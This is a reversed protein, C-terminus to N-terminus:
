RRARPCASVTDLTQGETATPRRAAAGQALPPDLVPAGEVAAGALWRRSGLHLAQDAPRGRRGDAM